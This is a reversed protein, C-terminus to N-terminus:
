APATSLASRHATTRTGQDDALDSITRNIWDLSSRHVAIGHDLALGAHDGPLDATSLFHELQAVFDSLADHLSRLFALVEDRSLLPEMMVFRMLHLGLDQSVTHSDVPAQIWNLHEARGQATARLINRPRRSTGHDTSRRATVLRRQRLRRLAPYLAGSSPQYVGLPTSALRRKLDYGSADAQCILALLIHEFDTLPRAPM